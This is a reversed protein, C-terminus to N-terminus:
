RYFVRELTLGCAPATPVRATRLGSAIIQPIEEPDIKGLGVDILAGSLSRVMKYIFGGAEVIIQTRKGRRRIDLRKLDIVPNPKSGDRRDAAFASFDHTGRLHGAAALMRELDIKRNELSYCFRSEFPNAWGEYIRYIYRKGKADHRAHFHAPAPRLSTVLIGAPLGGRLVRLFQEVPAPWAADFHFVQEKAHVGSDTRSAGYIRVPSGMVEGIRKQIFDQITNGSRQSAWGFFGTGDYAVTAKWRIISPPPLEPTMPLIAQVSAATGSEKPVSSLEPKKLSASSFVMWSM